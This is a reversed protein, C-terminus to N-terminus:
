YKKLKFVKVAGREMVMKEFHKKVEPDEDVKRCDSYMYTVGRRKILDEVWPGPMYDNWVVFGRKDILYTFVYLTPDSLIICLADDPAAKKLDDKFRFVDKVFYSAEITWKDRMEHRAIFPMALLLAAGLWKVAKGFKMCHKIGYAVLLFLLPLFPMMYYEHTMGIMNFEYVWYALVALGASALYKFQWHRWTKNKVAFFIGTLFFPVSTYGLLMKPFMEKLHFEVTGLFEKYLMPHDFIGAVVGNNWGPVVWAYWSLSPLMIVFFLLAVKWAKRSGETKKGFFSLFLYLGPVALFIIYPLKAATALSVFFASWAADRCATTKLFKFFFFVSWVAGCLGLNDPMPNISHYYFVPSFSFAWTGAFATLHDNFLIRLLYFMGLSSGLGILFMMIRTVLFSEGTCKYVLAVVWQMVPLEARKINGEHGTNHTRPNLINFDHRYFHLINEQTQAQRMNHTGILDLKFVDWHFVLSVIAILLFFLFYHKNIAKVM